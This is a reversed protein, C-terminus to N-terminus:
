RPQFTPRPALSASFFWDRAPVAPPLFWHPTLRGWSGPPSPCRFGCRSLVSSAFEGWWPSPPCVGEVRKPESGRGEFGGLEGGGGYEVKQAGPPPESPGACRWSVSLGRACLRRSAFPCIVLSGPLSFLTMRAGLPCASGQHSPTPSFAPFSSVKAVPWRGEKGVHVRETTLTRPHPGAPSNVRTGRIPAM